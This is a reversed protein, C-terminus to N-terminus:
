GRTGSPSMSRVRLGVPSSFKESLCFARGCPLTKQRQRQRRTTMRQVGCQKACERTGSHPEDPFATSRGGRAAEAVPSAGHRAHFKLVNKRLRKSSENHTTRIASAKHTGDAKEQQGETRSKKTFFVIQTKRPHKATRRPPVRYTHRYTHRFEPNHTPFRPQSGRFCDTWCLTTFLRM